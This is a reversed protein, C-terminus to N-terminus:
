GRRRLFAILWAIASVLAVVILTPTFAAQVLGVVFDKILDIQTVFYALVDALTDMTRVTVRRPARSPSCAECPM